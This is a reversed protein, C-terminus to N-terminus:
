QPLYFLKVPFLVIAFCTSSWIQKYIFLIKVLADNFQLRYYIQFASSNSKIQLHKGNLKLWHKQLHMYHM